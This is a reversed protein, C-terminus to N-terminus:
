CPLTTLLNLKALQFHYVMYHTIGGLHYVLKFSIPSVQYHGNSIAEILAQQLAEEVGLQQMMMDADWDQALLCELVPLQGKQAAMVLACVGDNDARNIEAGCQTLLKVTELHGEGGALALPAVGKENTMNPDAGYELLLSVM